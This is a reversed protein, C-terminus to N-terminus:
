GPRRARLVIFSGQGYGPRIADPEKLDAPLRFLTQHIVPEMFGANKIMDIVADAGYFRADEYFPNSFRRSQYLRGLPSDGDVMGILLFGGSQLVQFAERLAQLPDDVFCLTTVFLVLDVSKTRLPLAEAVGRAVIIGRQRALRAMARAPEIGFRIDLPLAFRGTGVGVEIGRKFPPLVARIASIESQYAHPYKDFWAEYRDVHHEFARTRPM